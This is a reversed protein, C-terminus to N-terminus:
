KLKLAPKAGFVGPNREICRLLVTEEAYLRYFSKQTNQNSDSYSSSKSFQKLAANTAAIKDQKVFINAV